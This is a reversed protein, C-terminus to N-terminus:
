PLARGALWAAHREATYAPLPLRAALRNGLTRWYAPSAANPAIGLAEIADLQALVARVAPEGEAHLLLRAGPLVGPIRQAADLPTCAQMVMLQWRVTGYENAHWRIRCFMAGPLFVAVRRWRDLRVIRAPEGFRLYLDIRQEIYALSVRTLPAAGARGALVAPSPPPAATAALASANM